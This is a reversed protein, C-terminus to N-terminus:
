NGMYGVGIPVLGLVRKLLMKVFSNPMRSNRGSGDVYEPMYQLLAEVVAGSRSIGAHCHVVINDGRHRDAFKKIAIADDVSFFRYQGVELRSFRAPDVDDFRLSLVELFGSLVPRNTSSGVISICVADLRSYAEAEAMCVNKIWPRYSEIAFTAVMPPAPPNIVSCASLDIIAQSM